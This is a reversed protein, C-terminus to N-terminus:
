HLMHFAEGIPNVEAAARAYFDAQAKDGAASFLGSATAFVGAERVGSDLARRIWELGESWEGNQHLAWALAAQTSFNSRLAVDRRAWKVAEAPQGGADAYYDALHHFYHVGGKKASALYEAEAAELWPQAEEPRGAHLLLEGLAQKSEPKPVRAVVSKQREVAREFDGEIALLEAFHEDTQWHGPFSAAAREYHARAKAIQGRGTALKGRQLELWAFSRMEKATLDEEAAAYLEDARDSDGMKGQWHALRALNDWTPEEAILKEWQDRAEQYLGSQFDVDALIARGAARGALAPCLRLGEKVEPLRHFRGDLNAKLLCVDETPGFDELLRAITEGVADFDPECGTLSALHFQRYALRVRKEPDGPNRLAIAELAAIDGRAKALEAEYATTM